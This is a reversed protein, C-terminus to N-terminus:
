LVKKLEERSQHDLESISNIVFLNGIVDKIFLGDSAVQRICVFPNKVIFSCKGRDTLADFYRNGIHVSTKIIKKIHTILYKNTLEIEAIKRSECDLKDLHEVIEIENKEGIVSIEKGFGNVPRLWSITVPFEECTTDSKKCAFIKGQKIKLAIL